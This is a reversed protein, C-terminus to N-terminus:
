NKALGANLATKPLRIVGDSYVTIFNFGKEKLIKKDQEIFCM